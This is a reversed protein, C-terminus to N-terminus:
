QYSLLRCALQQNKWRTAFADHIEFWSGDNGVGHNAGMCSCQCEHGSANLCAPACKEQERHPQIIYVKRYRELAIDVSRNFWSKPTEWCHLNANWNPSTRRGDQLWHRNNIAYPIRIRLRQGNGGRRLIVPVSKGNWIDLLKKQNREPM